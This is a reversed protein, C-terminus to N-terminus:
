RSAKVKRSMLNWSLRKYCLRRETQKVYKQTNMQGRVTEKVIEMSVAM